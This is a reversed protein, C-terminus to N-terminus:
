EGTLEVPGQEFPNRAPEVSPQKTGPIIEFGLEFAVMTSRLQELIGPNGEITAKGSEIQAALSIKGM